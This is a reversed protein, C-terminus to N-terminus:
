ENMEEKFAKRLTSKIGNEHHKATNPYGPTATNLFSHEQPTM